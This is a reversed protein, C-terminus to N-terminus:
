EMVPFLKEALCERELYQEMAKELPLEQDLIRGALMQNILQYRSNGEWVTDELRLTKEETQWTEKEQEVTLYYRLTEGYFLLFEKVFIGQYMNKMPESKFVAEEEGNEMCYHIMVRAKAPFHEEVFQKDDLQYPKTYCSPLQHFFAFRLGAESCEELIRRVLPSQKESIRKMEAYYKLLALRCIKDLEWERQCCIELCEFIYSDMQQDGLFYEYSCFSLYALIM